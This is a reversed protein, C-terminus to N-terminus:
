EDNYNINYTNNTGEEEENNKKHLARELYVFDNAAELFEFYLCSRMVKHKRGM